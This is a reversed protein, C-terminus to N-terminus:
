RYCKLTGSLIGDQNYPAVNGEDAELRIGSLDVTVENGNVVFEVTGSASYGDFSTFGGGSFQVLHMTVKAPDEDLADDTITYTTTTTPLETLNTDISFTKLADNEQNAGIYGVGGAYAWGCPGNLKFEAGGTTTLTIDAVGSPAQYFPAPNNNDDDKSCASIAILAALLVLKKM